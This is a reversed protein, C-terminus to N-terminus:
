WEELFALYTQLSVQKNSISLKKRINKRHFNVANISVDLQEAIDKTKQGSKILLAVQLEQPTFSINMLRASALLASGPGELGEQIKNLFFRQTDTLETQKLQELYPMVLRCLNKMLVQPSSKDAQEPAPKGAPGDQDTQGRNAPTPTYDSFRQLAHCYIAAIEMVCSLDDDGYDEAPNALSIQGVLEEGNLVPVSLFREVAVHNDPLGVSSPHSSPSNSYFPQRTNLSHGWLSPYEGSDMLPFEIGGPGPPMHCSDGIMGTLTLCVNKRTAPDIISAYGIASRTLSKAYNLVINAVGTISQGSTILDYALGTISKKDEVM